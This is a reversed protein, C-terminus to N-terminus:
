TDGGNRVEGGTSRLLRHATEVVFEPKYRVLCRVDGFKCEPQNCNGCELDSSDLCISTDGLPKSWISPTSGFLAVVPVRSIWAMHMLASDETVVLQANKVLVLAETTTTSNVLTFLRDGLRKKLYEAKAAIRETGVIVFSTDRDVTDNWIDAFRAYHDIPWNKTVASGAPNLVIYNKTIPFGASIWKDMNLCEPFLEVVPLTEPLTTLALADITQRVRDGASQLSFRDFEAHSQANLFRRLLRSMTNRQLDLVIDYQEKRLGPALSILKALLRKSNRQDDVAYVNNFMVAHRPIDACEERTLLHLDADPLAHKLAQLYPLTIVVDGLAHFRIVLIKKPPSASTWPRHSIQERM